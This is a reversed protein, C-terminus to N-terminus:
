AVPRQSCFSHSLFSSVENEAEGIEGSGRGDAESCVPRVGHQVLSKLHCPFFALLEHPPEQCIMWKLWGSKFLVHTFYNLHNSGVHSVCDAGTLKHVINATINM